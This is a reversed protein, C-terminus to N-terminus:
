LSQPPAQARLHRARRLRSVPEQDEQARLHRNQAYAHTLSLRGRFLPCPPPELLLESRPGAAVGAGERSLAPSKQARVCDRAAAKASCRRPARLAEGSGGCDKCLRKQRDHECIGAGRCDKCQSKQRGHECKKIVRKVQGPKQGVDALQPPKPPVLMGVGAIAEMIQHQPLPQQQSLPPAQMLAEGGVVGSLGPLGSM